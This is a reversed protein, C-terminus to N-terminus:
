EMAFKEHLKTSTNGKSDVNSASRSNIAVLYCYGNRTQLPPRCLHGHKSPRNGAPHNYLHAHQCVRVCVRACVRVCARM